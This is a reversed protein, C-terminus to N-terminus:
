IEIGNSTILVKDDPVNPINKRHWPSLVMVKHLRNIREETFELQNIIDHAWIYIKKAKHNKDLLGPRRWYVLINFDDNHNFKYYSVYKVNDYTGEMRGVDSYVTVNWGQKALERTLYIVAEESGGIFSNGKLELNNPNWPTAGSGCFVVVDKEGWKKPPNIKNQMDAIIPNNEIESPISLSLAKLKERENKDKSKDLYKAIGIVHKSLERQRTLDTTFKVRDNMEKSEPFLEILKQAAAWAEDLKNTNISVHYAVELARAQIDRPNTVLTNKPQDLKTAIKVWFLARGWEKKMLYMVALSIYISPAADDEILANHLAKIANNFEGRTRYIEAAYEWCQAREAPWGSKNKGELYEMFLPLAQNRYLESGEQGALDFLAKGLYYIPRPDKNKTTYISYELASMNRKLAEKMRDMSSLHVVDCQDFDVKKTPRKEILTEHIPAIWEYSGDLKIIRERLHEILIHKINWDKDFEAQYVYNLFGADVSNEEMLQVVERLKEGHRLVDDVDLWLMWEYEKPIIEMSYNRAKDFQFIEDGVSVRPEMKLFKKLWTHEKSTIKHFFKKPEYKVTGEFNEVVKGLEKGKTPTTITVFIGDVHGTASLLCRRLTEPKEHGAVIMSLAIKGM